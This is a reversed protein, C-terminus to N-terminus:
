FCVFNNMKLRIRNNWHLTKTIRIGKTQWCLGILEYNWHKYKWFFHYWFTAWCTKLLTRKKIKQNKQNNNTLNVFVQTQIVRACRAKDVVAPLWDTCLIPSWTVLSRICPEKTTRICYRGDAQGHPRKGLNLKWKYVKKKELKAAKVSPLATM